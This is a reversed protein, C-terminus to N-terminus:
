RATPLKNELIFDESGEPMEDKYKFTMQENDWFAKAQEISLTGGAAGKHGNLLGLSCCDFVEEISRGSVKGNFDRFYNLAIVYDVQTKDERLLRDAVISIKGGARFMAFRKGKSDTRYQLERVATRYVENERAISEQIYRIETSTWTWKLQSELKRKVSTFFRDAASRRDPCDWLMFKFLVRQLNMAEEWLPSEKQWLDYTNVLEVYERVIPRVRSVFHCVYEEFFIKTGCRSDDLVCGPTTKVWETNENVHHDFIRISKGKATLEDYLDKSISFDAMIIEDAKLLLDMNNPFLEEGYDWMVIRDFPLAFHESLVVSGLGDSDVHSVLIRM